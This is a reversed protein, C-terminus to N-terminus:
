RGFQAARAEYYLERADFIAPRPPVNVSSFEWIRM